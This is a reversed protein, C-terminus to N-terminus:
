NSHRDGKASPQINNDVVRSDAAIRREMFRRLCVKIPHHIHVGLAYEKAAAGCNALHKCLFWPIVHTPPDDVYGGLM